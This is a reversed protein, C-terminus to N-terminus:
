RDRRSSATAGAFDAPDVLTFSWLSLLTTHKRSITQHRSTELGKLFSGVALTEFRENGADAFRDALRLKLLPATSAGTNDYFLKTLLSLVDYNFLIGTTPANGLLARPVAQLSKNEGAAGIRMEATIFDLLGKLPNFPDVTLQQIEAMSILQDGNLDAMMAAQGTSTELGTERIEGVAAPDLSLLVGVTEAAQVAIRDFMRRRAADAGPTLFSSLAGAENLALTQAGTIGPYAPEAEVLFETETARAVFYLYGDKQGAALAPHIMCAGQSVACFVALEPLNGPFRGQLTKFVLAATRIQGLNTSAMGTNAGERVKQVAPLLLGILVAIIAIVVLLEGAMFGGNKERSPTASATM